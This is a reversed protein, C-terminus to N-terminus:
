ATEEEDEQDTADERLTGQASVGSTSKQADLSFSLGLKAMLKDERSRQTFVDRWDLGLRASEIEWTSLGGKIRLLAAQTEKLEDIQGRSAGIWSCQSLADKVMPEYFWSADKGPPLPINGANIEEELWLQYVFTAFRDAVATKKAQMGKWTEVMSARASSYNTKTYDRTFQEYSLGLCAAIHRLLSQEFGDGVGGPQQLSQVNLKTGPFLHPMKVGDVSINKSADLFEALQGMYNGLYSNFGDVTAEGVNASAGGGMQTFVEAAPLESEIAAAYTAAVVAQQLVIEQFKKTMRMQKLVAVMDAVGRTQDPLLQEIIHIVQKRGWPKEAEVRKWTYNFGWPDTPYGSRFHYAIPRGRFDTEVGRRLNKEDMTDNPNCLRFSSVMQVATRCPRRFDKIWEATGLVEGTMVFCGVALRVLSTFTRTRQVDLWCDPSNALVNFRAEVVEQFQEAWEPSVGLVRYNPQANLRYLSGVINDRHLSVAGNAYGDNQVMDQGRADAEAKVPNITQDPSRMNASWKMTERTTREAGELGGGMAKETIPRADMTALERSAQEIKKAAM